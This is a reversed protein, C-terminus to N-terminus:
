IIKNRVIEEIQTVTDHINHNEIIHQFKDKYSMQHKIEKIKNYVDEDQRGKLRNIIEDFDATLFITVYAYNQCIHLFNEIASATVNFITNAKVNSRPTAYKNGNFSIVEMFFNEMELQHFEDISVFKYEVGNNENKRKERTTYSISLSLQQNRKLLENVITTKGVGQPGSIIIIM